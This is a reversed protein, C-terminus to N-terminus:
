ADLLDGEGDGDRWEGWAGDVDCEGDGGGVATGNVIFWLFSAIKTCSDRDAIDIALPASGLGDDGGPM